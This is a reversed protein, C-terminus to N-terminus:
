RNEGSSIWATYSNTNISEVNGSTKRSDRFNSGRGLEIGAVCVIEKRHRTQGSSAHNRDSYSSYTCGIRFRKLPDVDRHSCENYIVRPAFHCKRCQRQDQHHNSLAQGEVTQVFITGEQPVASHRSKEM